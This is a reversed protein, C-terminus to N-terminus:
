SIKLSKVENIDIPDGVKIENNKVWGGNTELVYRSPKDIGVVKEKLPTTNEVFGLVKKNENLFVMDLPIFTNKMWMNQNKTHGFDFLMGTNEPLPNHIHMLGRQIDAPKTVVKADIFAEREPERCIFLLLIISLAILLLNIM